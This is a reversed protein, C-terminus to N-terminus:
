ANAAHNRAKRRRWAAKQAISARERRGPADWAHQVAQSIRFNRKRRAADLDEASLLERRPAEIFTLFSRFAQDDTTM